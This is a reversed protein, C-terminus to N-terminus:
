DADFSYNAAIDRLWNDFIGTKKILLVKNKYDEKEKEFEDDNIFKFEIPEIITFGNRIEIPNSVQGPKLRFALEVIKYTEVIEDINDYRSIFEANHLKLNHRKSLEELSINDVKSENYLEATKKNAFEISKENKILNAIYSSAKEKEEEKFLIKNRDYFSNIENESVIIEDKLSDQDILIYSFRIKEHENKYFRLLEEESVAADKTIDEKLKSNALFSRASEEFDRPMLGLDYKLIHKYLKNDFEGNRNFLPHTSIFKIVERNSIAIKERKTINKLILNQYAVQNLLQRDAKLKDLVEPQNFYNLFLGVEADKLSKAFDESSIQINGGINVRNNLKGKKSLNGAQLTIFGPIILLATVLFIRKVTKKKRLFKLM